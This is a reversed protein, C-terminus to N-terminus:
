QTLLNVAELEARRAGGEMYYRVAGDWWMLKRGEKTKVGGNKKENYKM